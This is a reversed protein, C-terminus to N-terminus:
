LYEFLITGECELRVIIVFGTITLCRLQLMNNHVNLSSIQFKNSGIKAEAPSRPLRTGVDKLDGAYTPFGGSVGGVRPLFRGHPIEVGSGFCFNM